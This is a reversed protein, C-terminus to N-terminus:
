ILKNRALFGVKIYKKYFLAFGLIATFKNRMTYGRQKLVTLLRKFRLLGNHLKILYKRDIIQQRSLLERKLYGVSKEEM